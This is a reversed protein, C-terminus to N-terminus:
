QYQTFKVLLSPPFLLSSVELQKGAFIIRQNAPNTGEVAQVKSKLQEVPLPFIDFCTNLFQDDNLYLSLHISLYISLFFSLFMSTDNANAKVTYTTGAVNKVLLSLSGGTDGSGGM